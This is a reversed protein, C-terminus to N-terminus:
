EQASTLSCGMPTPPPNRERWTGGLFWFQGWYYTGTGAPDDQQGKLIIFVSHCFPLFCPLDAHKPRGRRDWANAILGRPLEEPWKAISMDKCPGKSGGVKLWCLWAFLSVSDTALLQFCDGSPVKRVRYCKSGAWNQNWWRWYGAHLVVETGSVQLLAEGHPWWRRRIPKYVCFAMLLVTVLLISFITGM